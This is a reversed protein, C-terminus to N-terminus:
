FPEKRQDYLLHSKLPETPPADAKPQPQSGLTRPNLEVDPGVEGEGETARWVQASERECVCLYILDKFFILTVKHSVM